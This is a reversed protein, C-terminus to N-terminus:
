GHVSVPESDPCDLEARPYRNVQDLLALLGGSLRDRQEGQCRVQDVQAFLDALSASPQQELPTLEREQPGGVRSKDHPAFHDAPGRDPLMGHEQGAM